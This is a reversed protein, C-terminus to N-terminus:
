PRCAAPAPRCVTAAPEAGDDDVRGAVGVVEDGPEPHPRRVGGREPDGVGHLGVRSPHPSGAVRRGVEAGLDVDAGLAGVRRGEVVDTALLGEAARESRSRGHGPDDGQHQRAVGARVRVSPTRSM